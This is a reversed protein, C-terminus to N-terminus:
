LPRKLADDYSTTEDGFLERFASLIQENPAVLQDWYYHGVEHRLHGLLTRYPEGLSVRVEERFPDHAEKLNLTIIGESHGTMVPQGAMPELIDFALGQPSKENKHALPLNLALISYVLRRKAVEIKTWAARTEEQSLNPITRNLRCSICFANNDSEAVL